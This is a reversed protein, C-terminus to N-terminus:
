RSGRWQDAAVEPSADNAIMPDKRRPQSQVVEPFVMELDKDQKEKCCCYSCVAPDSACINGCVCCCAVLSLIIDCCDSM